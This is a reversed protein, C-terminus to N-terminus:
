LGAHKRLIDLQEKSLIIGDGELYEYEQGCKPCKNRGYEEYNHPNEFKGNIGKTGKTGKIGEAQSYLEGMHAGCIQCYPGMEEWKKGDIVVVKLDDSM